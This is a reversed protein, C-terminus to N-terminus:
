IHFPMCTQVHHVQMEQTVAKVEPSAEAGHDAADRAEMRELGQFANKDIVPDTDAESVIHAIILFCSYIDLSIQIEADHVQSVQSRKWKAVENMRISKHTYVKRENNIM